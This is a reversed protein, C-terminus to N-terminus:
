GRPGSGRRRAEADRPIMLLIAAGLALMVFAAVIVATSAGTAAMADGPREPAPEPEEIDGAGFKPEVRVDMASTGDTQQPIAVLFPDCTYRANAEAPSVRSIEYLGPELGTFVADGSADSVATATHLRHREAYAGIDKALENLRSPTLRMWDADFRSFAEETALGTLAGHEDLTGAAVRAIAYTDGALPAAVGNQDWVSEITIAGTRQVARAAQAAPVTQAAHAVPAAVAPLIVALLLLLPLLPLLFPALAATRTTRQTDTAHPM